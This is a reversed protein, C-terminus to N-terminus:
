TGWGGQADAMVGPLPAGNRGSVRVAFSWAKAPQALKVRLLNWGEALAVEASAGARPPLGVEEVSSLVRTDGLWVKAGGDHWLELRAPQAVPSWLWTFAYVVGFAEPGGGRMAMPNRGDPGVALPTWQALRARAASTRFDAGAAEPPFEAELLGDALGGAVRLPASVQWSTVYRARAEVNTLAADIEKRLETGVEAAGVLQLAARAAVPDPLRSAIKVVAAAAEPWVPAEALFREALELEAATRGSALGSLLFRQQVPTPASAAIARMLELREALAGQAGPRGVLRVCAKTALERNEENGDRCALVRLDPLLAPDYTLSAARIAAARVAPERDWLAARWVAGLEPAVV